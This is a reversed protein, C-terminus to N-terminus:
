FQDQIGSIEYDIVEEEYEVPENDADSLLSRYSDSTRDRGLPGYGTKYGSLQDQIGSEKDRTKPRASSSPKSDPLLLQKALVFVGGAILGMGYGKMGKRYLLYGGIAAVAPIAYQAYEGFYERIKDGLVYDIVVVLGSGIATQMLVQDTIGYKERTKRVKAKLDEIARKAKELGPNKRKAVAQEAM